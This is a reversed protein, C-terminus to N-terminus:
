KSVIHVKIEGIVGKYLEVNLKSTGLTNLPNDLEIKRKDVKIDHNILLKNVIQKTSISGSVRGNGSTALHFQLTINNLSEKIKIAEEKKLSEIKETAKKKQELEAKGQSNAIVALQNKILFNQGYGDAVNVIEGTKGVKKVDQLLIVKM